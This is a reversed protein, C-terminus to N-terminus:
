VQKGMGYFVGLVILCGYNAKKELGLVSLLPKHVFYTFANENEIVFLKQKRGQFFFTLHQFFDIVYALRPYFFVHASKDNLFFISILFCIM